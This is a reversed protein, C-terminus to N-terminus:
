NNYYNFKIKLSKNLNKKYSKCINIENKYQIIKQFIKSNKNLTKKAM